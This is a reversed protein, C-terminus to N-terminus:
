KETKAKFFPSYYRFYVYVSAIFVVTVAVDVLLERYFIMSLFDSLSGNTVFLDYPQGQRYTIPLVDGIQYREFTQSTVAKTAHIIEGSETQFQISYEYFSDEYRRNTKYFEADLIVANTETQKWPILKFFLNKMFRFAIYFFVGMTVYFVGWGFKGNSERGLFTKNELFRNIWPIETLLVLLGLLTMTGFITIVGISILSDFIYDRLTSFHADNKAYGSITKGVEIDNLQRKSVQNSYDAKEGNPLLVRVHHSPPGFLGKQGFKEVVIVETKKVDKLNNESIFDDVFFFTIAGFFLIFIMMWIIEKAKEFMYGGCHERIQFSKDSTIICSHLPISFSHALFLVIFCYFMEHVDYIEIFLWCFPAYLNKFCGTREIKVGIM